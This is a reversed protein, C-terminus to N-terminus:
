LATDELYLTSIPLKLELASSAHQFFRRLNLFIASHAPSTKARLAACPPFLSINTFKIIIYFKTNNKIM